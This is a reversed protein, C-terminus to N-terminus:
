LVTSRVRGWCVGQVRCSASCRASRGCRATGAIGGRRMRRSPRRKRRSRPMQLPPPPPPLLQLITSLASRCRATQVSCTASCPASPGSPATGATGARKTPHSTRNRRRSPPTPRPSPQQKHPTTNPVPPSTATQTKQPSSVDNTPQKPIPPSSLLKRLSCQITGLPWIPGDWRDWNEEYSTIHSKELEFAEEAPTRLQPKLPKLSNMELPPQQATYPDFSVM